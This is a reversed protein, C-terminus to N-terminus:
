EHGKNILAEAFAEGIQSLIKASGLYHFAKNSVGEFAIAEKEPNKRRVDKPDSGTTM